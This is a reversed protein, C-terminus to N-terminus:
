SKYVCKVELPRLGIARPLPLILEKDVALWSYDPRLIRLKGDAPPQSIETHKYTVFLLVDMRDKTKGLVYGQHFNEMSITNTKIINEIHEKDIRIIAYRGVGKESYRTLTRAESSSVYVTALGNIKKMYQAAILAGTRRGGTSQHHCGYYEFLKQQLTDAYKEGKEYLNKSI